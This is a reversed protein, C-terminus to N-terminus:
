DNQFRIDDIFASSTTEDVTESKEITVMGDADAKDLLGCILPSEVGLIYNCTKPELLYLSVTAMSPANELCKLVVETQRPKGTKDCISGDAYLHFLQKRTGVAKPRKEPHKMLFEKHLNEKFIGLTISSETNKDVHYQRVYRGYCFEYKWWGTGGTLCNKGELFEDVPTTDKMSTGIKNTVVEEGAEKSDAFLYQGNIGSLAPNTIDGEVLEMTLKGDKFM